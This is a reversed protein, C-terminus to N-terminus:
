GHVDQLDVPQGLPETRLYRVVRDLQPDTRAYDDAQQAV